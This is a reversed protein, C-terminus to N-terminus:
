FKYQDSNKTEVSFKLGSENTLSFKNSQTVFNQQINKRIQVNGVEKKVDFSNQVLDFRALLKNRANNDMNTGTLVYLDKFDAEFSNKINQNKKKPILSLSPFKKKESNRLKLSGHEPVVINSFHSLPISKIKTNLQNVNEINNTQVILLNNQRNINNERNNQLQNNILLNIESFGDNNEALNVDNQNKLNNEQNESEQDIQSFLINRSIDDFKMHKLSFNCLCKNKKFYQHFELCFKDIVFQHLFFDKDIEHNKKIKKLTGFKSDRDIFYWSSNFYNLYCHNRSVSNDEFKILSKNFRGISFLKDNNTNNPQIYYIGIVKGTFIDITEFLIFNKKYDVDVEFIKKKQNKYIITKPYETLCIDCILKKLDYFTIQTNKKIGICKKQLWILLCKIHAPMHKSCPCLNKEFPNKDTERQLCIRCYLCNTQNINSRSMKSIDMESLGKKIELFLPDEKKIFKESPNNINNINIIKIINRGIRIHDEKQIKIKLDNKSLKLLNQKEWLYNKHILKENKPYNITIKGKENDFNIKIKKMEKTFNNEILEERLFTKKNEIDLYLYMSKSLLYNITKINASKELNFLGQNDEKWIKIKM